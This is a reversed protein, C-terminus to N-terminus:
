ILNKFIAVEYGMFINLMEIQRTVILSPQNLVSGLGGSSPALKFRNIPRSTALRLTRHPIYKFAKINM